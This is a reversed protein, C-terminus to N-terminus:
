ALRYADYGRLVDDLARQGGRLAAATHVLVANPFTEGVTMELTRDRYPRLATVSWTRAASLEGYHFRAFTWDDLLRGGLVALYAAAGTSARAALGELDKATLQISETESTKVEIALRRGSLTVELDIGQIGRDTLEEAGADLFAIALLKQALKGYQQGTAESLELLRRHVDPRM